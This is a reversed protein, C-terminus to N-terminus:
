NKDWDNTCTSVMTEALKKGTSVMTEALKKGTSVMTEALKQGHKGHERSAKVLALWTRQKPYNKGANVM